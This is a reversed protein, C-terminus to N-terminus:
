MKLFVDVCKMFTEGDGGVHKIGAFTSADFTHAYSSLKI